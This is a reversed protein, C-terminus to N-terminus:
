DNKTGQKWDTKIIYGGTLSDGANDDKDLKAIDVRKNGRKIKEGLLYIGRYEGDMVLDVFRVRPSYHGMKGFIDYALFNRLLSKDSFNATLM